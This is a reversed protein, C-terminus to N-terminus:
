WHLIYAHSEDQDTCQLLFVPLNCKEQYFDAPLLPMIKEEGEADEQKKSQLSDDLILTLTALATAAM